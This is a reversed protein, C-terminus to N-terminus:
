RAIAHLQTSIVKGEKQLDDLRKLAEITRGALLLSEACHKEAQLDGNLDYTDMLKLVVDIDDTARRIVSLALLSSAEPITLLIDRADYFSPVNQLVISAACPHRAVLQILEEKIAGCRIYMSAKAQVASSWGEIDTGLEVLGEWLVVVHEVKSCRTLLAVVDESTLEVSCEMRVDLLLALAEAEAVFM